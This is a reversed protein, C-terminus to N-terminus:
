KIRRVIGKNADVDVMDGDKFVQTAFKTGIVCPVNLERSVIAAHSTIGGTNTVIAGAKRMASVIDPTTAISVLIDGQKMKVMDSPTNVIKVKGRAMGVCAVQGKLEKSNKVVESKYNQKLFQKAKVGSLVRLKVTTGDLICIKSRKPLEKKLDSNGQLLLSPEWPAVNQIHNISVGSRRALEQLAGQMAYFSYSLADRRAAKMIMVERMGEFLKREATTLKLKREMELRKKKIQRKEHPLQKLEKETKKIEKFLRKLEKKVHGANLIPGIYGYYAWSFKAIHKKIREEVNKQNKYIVVALRKLALREQRQINNDIDATLSAFCDASSDMLKLQRIRKSLLETAYDSLVPRPIDMLAPLVGWGLVDRVLKEHNIFFNAFEKNSLPSYNYELCKDSFDYLRDCSKVSQHSVFTLYNQNKIQKKLLRESLQETDKKSPIWRMHTGEFVIFHPISYQARRAVGFRFAPTFVGLSWPSVGEEENGLIWEQKGKQTV